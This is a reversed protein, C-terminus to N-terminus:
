TGRESDAAAVLPTTAPKNRDRAKCRQFVLPSLLTEGTNPVSNFLHTLAQTAHISRHPQHRAATVSDAEIFCPCCPSLTFSAYPDLPPDKVTM